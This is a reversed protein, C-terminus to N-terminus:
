QWRRAGAYEMVLEVVPRYADDPPATRRAAPWTAIRYILARILMQDWYPLHAWREIVAPAVDHWCLADIVAVACAWAPPRWYAPWDIIAPPRGDAFLVNGILDGHVVQSGLSVPRRGDLLPKLLVSPATSEPPVPEAWALRDAYSWPDRRRDLFSPRPLAAIATHFAEGARVVDDVRRPDAHGSVAEVAEWGFALWDGGAARIPGAIRFLPSPPLGALVDARWRSEADSEARKLVISGARWTGGRGGALRYAPRPAGFAELVAAPPPWLDPAPDFGSDTM